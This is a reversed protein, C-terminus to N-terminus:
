DNHWRENIVYEKRDRFEQVKGENWTHIPRLYGVVRSYVDVPKGCGAVPCTAPM